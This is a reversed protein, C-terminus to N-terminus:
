PNSGLIQYDIDISDIEINTASGSLEFKATKGVSACAISVSNLTSNAAFTFTSDASASGDVYVKFTITASSKYMLTVKNIRKQTDPSGFDFRGTKLILNGTNLSGNNIAVVAINDSSNRLGHGRLDSGVVINSIRDDFQGKNVMWSNHYLNYDLSTDSGSNNWVSITNLIADFGVTVHSFTKAQWTDRIKFSLEKTSNTSVATIARDNACVLGIPTECVAHKYSAGVGVFVRELQHNKNYVYTNKTKFVFLRDRFSMLKIIQDGDNVGVNLYKGPVIEDLKFPDTFFVRNKDRSTQDNEDLTDIDAYYGRNNLVASTNWKISALKTKSARGTLSSYTALKLGDYPIYWTTAKTQHKFHTSIRNPKIVNAYAATHQAQVRNVNNYKKFNIKSNSTSISTIPTYYAGLRNFQTALNTSDNTEKRSLIAIYNTAGASETAQFDNTAGTWSTTDFTFATTTGDIHKIEDNAAIHNPCPVFYGYNKMAFSNYNNSAYFPSLNSSGPVLTNPTNALISESYGKNIDLSEVLYWDVDGKPQWYVNLSTIRPNHYGSSSLGNLVVNMARGKQPSSRYYIPTNVPHEKGETGLQARRVYIRDTSISQIFMVESDIKIYTYLQFLAGTGSVVDLVNGDESLASTNTTGSDSEDDSGKIVEFGSVGIEGDRNLSLSSEQVYDYIYTLAYRDAPDFTDNDMANIWANHEDNETDDDDYKHRPEYVFLGVDTNDKLSTFTLTQGTKSGGTSAASIVFVTDSTISVIYANAPIGSGEVVMNPTLALTSNSTTITTANNYSCGAVTVAGDHAMSMKVVTPPTIAADQMYWDNLTQNHHVIAYRPVTTDDGIGLNQGFIDRKIHAYWKSTNTFSGDGIRLIQNHVLFDYVPSSSWGTTLAVWTGGTGTSLDYIALHTSVGIVAWVKTNDADSGDKETRYETYETQGDSVTNNNASIVLGAKTKIIKGPKENNVAEFTVFEGDKLDFESQNSNLGGSFNRISIRPM